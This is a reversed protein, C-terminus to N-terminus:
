AMIRIEKPTLKNKHGRSTVWWKKKKCVNPFIFSSFSPLSKLSIYRSKWPQNKKYSDTYWAMKIYNEQITEEFHDQIKGSSQLSERDNANTILLLLILLMLWRINTYTKWNKLSKSYTIQNLRLIVSTPLAPATVINVKWISLSHTNANPSSDYRVHSRLM